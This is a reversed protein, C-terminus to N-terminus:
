RERKKWQILRISICLLQFATIVEVFTTRKYIIKKTSRKELKIYPMAEQPSDPTLHLSSIDPPLINAVKDHRKEVLAIDRWLIYSQLPIKTRKNAAINIM